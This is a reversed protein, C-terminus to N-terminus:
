GQQTLLAKLEASTSAPQLQSKYNNDYVCSPYLHHPLHYSLSGRYIFMVCGQVTGLTFNYEPQNKQSQTQCKEVCLM